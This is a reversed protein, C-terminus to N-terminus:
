VAIMCSGGNATFVHINSMLYKGNVLRNHRACVSIVVKTVSIPMSIIFTYADTM